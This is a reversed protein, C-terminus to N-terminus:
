RLHIWLLQYFDFMTPIGINKHLFFYDVKHFAFLRIGAPMRRKKNM